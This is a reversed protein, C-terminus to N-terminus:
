RRRQALAAEPSCPKELPGLDRWNLSWVLVEGGVRRGLVCDKTGHNDALLAVGVDSGDVHVLVQPPIRALDTEPDVQPAPLGTALATRVEAEGPTVPLAGLTAELAPIHDPPIDRRPLPPPTIPTADAPCTVRDPEAVAGYYNFDVQYCADFAPTRHWGGEFADRHIRWVLRARPDELDEHALDEARLVSFGASKGLTTGLAARAFGTADSQPPYGIADALTSSQRDTEADGEEGVGDLVGCSALLLGACVVAVVRPLGVM